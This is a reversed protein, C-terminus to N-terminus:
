DFDFDSDYIKNTNSAGVLCLSFEPSKGWSDSVCVCVNEM